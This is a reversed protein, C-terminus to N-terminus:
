PRAAPRLLRRSAPDEPYRHHEIQYYAELLPAEIGLEARAERLTRGGFARYDVTDLPTCDSVYGLKTADKFVAIMEDDFRYPRPYLYRAAWEYLNEQTTSVRNTSGMTFGIVFAEDKPLLGRGLLCHICDHDHLDVAGDFVDIWPLDLEPNEVLRIVLPVDDQGVSIHAASALADALTVEACALPVHWTRWTCDGPPLLAYDARDSDMREPYRTGTAAEFAQDEPRPAGVSSGGRIM